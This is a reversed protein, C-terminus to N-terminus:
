PLVKSFYYIKVQPDMRMADPAAHKEDEIFVLAREPKAHLWERKRAYCAGDDLGYICIVDPEM